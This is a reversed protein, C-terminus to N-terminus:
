ENMDGRKIYSFKHCEHTWNREIRSNDERRLTVIRQHKEDLNIGVIWIKEIIGAHKYYLLDLIRLYFFEKNQM